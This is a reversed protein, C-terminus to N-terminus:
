TEGRVAREVAERAERLDKGLLEYAERVSYHLEVLDKARKLDPDDEEVLKQNAKTNPSKSPRESVLALAATPDCVRLSTLDSLIEALQMTNQTSSSAM